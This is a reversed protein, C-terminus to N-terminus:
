SNSIDTTNYVYWDDFFSVEEFVRKYGKSLLLTYIKERMLTFNHEVTIFNFRYREFNFSSLIEFESGETDISLYDIVNPANANSLLSELTITEVDYSLFDNRLNENYDIQSFIDITSFEPVATQNFTLYEGNKNWVCRKDIKCDRNKLLAEHWIIGPEAIIGTWKYKKELLLTNSFILGDAAGFEVFYGYKKENTQSLIFLDQFLQSNSHIQNKIIFQLLDITEKGSKQSLSSIINSFKKITDKQNIIIKSNLVFKKQMEYFHSKSIIKCRILKEIFLKILSKM